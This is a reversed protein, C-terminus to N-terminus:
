LTIEYKRKVEESKVTNHNVNDLVKSNLEMLRRDTDKLVARTEGLEQRLEAITNLYKEAEANKLSIDKSLRSHERIAEATEKQCQQLQQDKETVRREVEQLQNYLKEVEHERKVLEKYRINSEGQLKSNREELEELM